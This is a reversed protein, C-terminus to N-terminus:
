VLVLVDAIGLPQDSGSGHDYCYSVAFLYVIIYMCLGFVVVIFSFCVQQQLSAFKVAEDKTCPLTGEVIDKQSQVYLLGLQVPDNGDVNKDTFYYRKRLMVVEKEDVGQDRLSKDSSLWKLEDDTHFNKKM